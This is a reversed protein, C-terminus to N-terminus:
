RLLGKGCRGCNLDGESFCGWRKCAADALADALELARDVVYENSYRGDAALACLLKLAVRERWPGIGRMDSM